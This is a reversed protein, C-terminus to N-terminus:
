FPEESPDFVPGDSAPLQEFDQSPVSSRFAQKLLTGVQSRWSQDIGFQRARRILREVESRFIEPPWRLAYDPDDVFDSM